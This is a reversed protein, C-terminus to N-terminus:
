RSYYTGTIETCYCSYNLMFLTSQATSDLEVVWGTVGASIRTRYMPIPERLGSYQTYHWIRDIVKPDRSDVTYITREM